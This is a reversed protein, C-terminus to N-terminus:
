IVECIDNSFAVPDEIPLGEILLASNYLVMAYKKLKEKDSSILAKLKEFVPHSTNIELVREAKVKNDTPMANLVKEMEISIGGENTLCVPHSKLKSSAVVKSVREGLAEKLFDFLEKDEGTEEKTENGENASSASVFSKEKYVDIVKLVFEDIDETLYLIEYGKEKLAETHPLKDAKEVTDACAYYIEKRDGMAEVYEDLTILKKRTSSYFMLLPALEDKDAGFNDYAGFKLQRSFAEYFKEYNERENKMMLSLESKIKKKLHGAIVKLQRDHQLVERSINLSLDASDVLGKVFGFYDPLLDGCKDMILVGNSYLQLGKEFEKTYYDFPPRCPIYMLANYSVIGDTSTHITKLPKEYDHFKDMYFSEYEEPTIESKNKRWLPVMSNLVSDEFYTEYEKDNDAKPRSKETLMKIPHRIYDSYKKIIGRIRYENLYDSYKDDESDEKLYLTIVTGAEDKEAPLIEYGEVGESQWLYANETGFKKTLVTVKKAVMFASYFGVGFHGIIEVDEATENEKKFIDSGSRAIVGLNNELDTEDMGIGTDIIKLTREEKDAEIRIFFDERNFVINEDKLSLFYLKDIADSANSILERLFIEKHTYISNIMLDLLRASESKFKRM